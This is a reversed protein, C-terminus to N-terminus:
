NATIDGGTFDVAVAPCTESPVDCQRQETNTPNMNGATADTARFRLTMVHSLGAVLNVGSDFGAQPQVRTATVLVDAGAATQSADFITSAAGPLLVSGISSSGPLLEIDAPVDIRFAVGFLRNLPGNVKVDVDFDGGSSAGAEMSVDGPGGNNADGTFTATVSGGGGPPQPLPDTGSGGGGCAAALLLTLALASLTAFRLSISSRKM